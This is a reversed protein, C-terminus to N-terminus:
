FLPGGIVRLSLHRKRLCITPTETLSDVREKRRATRFLTEDHFVVPIGDRSLRVDFEVGDAGAAIAMRIAAVTNEPARASLGRHAIILPLGDTKPGKNKTM